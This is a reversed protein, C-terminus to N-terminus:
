LKWLRRMVGTSMSFSFASEQVDFKEADGSPRVIGTHVAQICPSSILAPSCETASKIWTCVQM